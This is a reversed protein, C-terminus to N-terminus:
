TPRPIVYAIPTWRRCAFDDRSTGRGDKWHRTEEKGGGVGGYDDIRSQGGGDADVGSILIKVM